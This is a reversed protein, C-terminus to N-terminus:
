MEKRWLTIEQQKYYRRDEEDVLVLNLFYKVQFRNNVNAYTPTLDFQSLFLRIPIAEGRVPAGDMVEFKTLTDSEHYVNSGSFTSERKIIALEMHRIKIKVLVFFIKGIIVDKLHYKSRNYEFEIHLQDEIGVEMKIGTNTEPEISTNQVFFDRQKTLNTAYQRTITVQVFYRLRVNIGNYTEYEKPVSAFEFPYDKSGQLVGPQEIEKVVQTFDYHNGRDYFLEIQGVLEVKVGMHELKKGEMVAVTVTGKVTETGQYLLLDEVGKETTVHVVRRKEEDDLRITIEAPAILGQIAKKVKLGAAAM